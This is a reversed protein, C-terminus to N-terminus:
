QQGTKGYRDILQQAQAALPSSPSAEVVKRWTALAEDTLPPEASVLCNGLSLLVRADNPAAQAARRVEATGQRVFNQDGTGAGYFCASAGMDARTAANDPELALAQSYAQTAELWRGIRQQYLPSDPANERVVQVSDYLVNGLDIWAQASKPNQQANQRAQPLLADIQDLASATAAPQAPPAAGGGTLAFSVGVILVVVGVLAALPAWAPLAWRAAARGGLDARAPEAEFGRPREQRRAPPLPRYDLLEEGKEQRVVVSSRRGVAPSPSNQHDNTPPRNDTLAAQEADYSARRAPDGLVAYAREIADRKDRALAILEDAAGELRAPDYLERLRRYAAEIAEADARPHVQLIEYYDQAMEFM